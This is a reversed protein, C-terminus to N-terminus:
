TRKRSPLELKNKRRRKLRQVGQWAQNIPITHLIRTNIFILLQYPTIAGNAQKHLVQILLYAIMAIWIQIMVANERCLADFFVCDFYGRDMLVTDDPQFHLTKGVHLNHVRGNKIIVADPVMTGHNLRTHLKLAGKRTRFTAWPYRSLCLPVTSSDVSFLEGPLPCTHRGLQGKWLLQLAFFLDRYLHWDIRRNTEALTSRGVPM